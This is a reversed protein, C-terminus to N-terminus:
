TWGKWKFFFYTIIGIIIMGAFCLPYTFYWNQPGTIMSWESMGGIGAILTLPMFITMILTMRKMSHNLRNTVFSDKAKIMIEFISSYTDIIKKCQNNDIIIDDLLEINEETLKFKIKSMKIKELVTINANIGSSYYVMSKQLAFMNLLYQTDMTGSMKKELSDSIMNIARLHGLFHSVIGYLFKLLIDQLTKIKSIYRGELIQINEPLIVIMLNKFLFIGTSIIKFVLNDETSYNKPRKLIMVIHNDEFEVRSVEEPDLASNINYEDIGYKKTLYNIEEKSPATYVLLISKKDTEILKGNELKYQKLM